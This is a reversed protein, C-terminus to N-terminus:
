PFTLGGVEWVVLRPIGPRFEDTLILSNPSSSPLGSTIQEDAPNTGLFASTNVPRTVRRTTPSEFVTRTM